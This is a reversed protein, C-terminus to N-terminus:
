KTIKKFFLGILSFPLFFLFGALKLKTLKYEKIEDPIYYM